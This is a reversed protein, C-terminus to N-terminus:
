QVYSSSAFISFLCLPESYSILKCNQRFFFATVNLNLDLMEALLQDGGGVGMFHFYYKHQTKLGGTKNKESGKRDSWGGQKRQSSDWNHWPWRENRHDREWKIPVPLVEVSDHDHKNVAVEKELVFSAFYMFLYVFSYFPPFFPPFTAHGRIKASLAPM